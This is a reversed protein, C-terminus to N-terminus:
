CTGFFKWAAGVDIGFNSLAVTFFELCDKARMTGGWRLVCPDLRRV